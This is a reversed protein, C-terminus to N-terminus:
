AQCLSLPRAVKDFFAKSLLRSEKESSGDRIGPIGKLCWKVAEAYKRGVLGMLEDGTRGDLGKTIARSVETMTMGKFRADYCPRWLGIELLVIGLSYIEKVKTWGSLPVEPHYYVELEPDGIARSEISEQATPRSYQFGAIRPESINPIKKDEEDENYGATFVINDSRLSKHIWDTAHLLSIASILKRALHFRQGLPPRPGRKARSLMDKLTVLEGTADGAPFEYVFGIRCDGRTTEEFAEDEHVGLCVPQHFNTPDSALILSSLAMIRDMIEDKRPDNAAIFKWEIWVNVPAGDDEEYYGIERDSQISSGSTFSGSLRKAKQALLHFDQAQMKKLKASLELLADGDGTGHRKESSDLLLQRNFGSLVGTIIRITDSPVIDQLDKNLKGLNDVLEKLKDKYKIDWSIRHKQTIKQREELTKIIWWSGKGFTRSQAVSQQPVSVPQTIGLKELLEATEKHAVNIEAMTKMVDDQVRQSERRLLCNENDDIKVHEGWTELKSREIYYRFALFRLGNDESFINALINFADIAGKTAALLGVVGVVFGPIELSSM